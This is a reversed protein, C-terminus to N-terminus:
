ALTYVLEGDAETTTAEGRALLLELHARTELTALAANFMDLDAVKHEHRTWPVEGAVGYATLGGGALAKRCLELRVDHHALLEDVREGVQHAVAGVVADLRHDVVRGRGVALGGVGSAEVVNM